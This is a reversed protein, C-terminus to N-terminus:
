AFNGHNWGWHHRSAEQFEIYVRDPSVSLTSNLSQCILDSLKATLEADLVGINKFEVYATPEDTGAFTMYEVFELSTLVYDLKKGVLEAARSALDRQLARPEFDRTPSNTTIKLLPM